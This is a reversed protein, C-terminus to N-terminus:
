RVGKDSSAKSSSTANVTSSSTALVYEAQYVGSVADPERSPDHGLLELMSLTVVRLVRLENTLLASHLNHDEIIKSYDLIAELAPAGGVSDCIGVYVCGFGCSNKMWNIMDFVRKNLGSSEWDSIQTIVIEVCCMSWELVTNLEAIKPLIKHVDEMFLSDSKSSEVRLDWLLYYADCVKRDELQAKSISRGAAEATVESDEVFFSIM